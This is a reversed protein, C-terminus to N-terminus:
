LSHQRHPPSAFGKLSGPSAWAAKGDSDTDPPPYEFGPLRLLEGYVSQGLMLVLFGLLQLWSYPTLAEGFASTRDVVYHVFLGFAWILSTRSAELIARHVASLAGTVAIGSMNYTCCSFTYTLVMLLLGNNNKLMTLSDFPDEVHGDDGGPIFWLLPYVIVIMQLIGWLGEITVIEVESIDLDRLLWEGAIIQVSQVAQGAIVMLMGLILQFQDVDAGPQAGGGWVNALSV